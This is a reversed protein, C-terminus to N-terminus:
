RSPAVEIEKSRVFLAAKAIGAAAAEVDEKRTPVGLSVRLSEDAESRSAGMATLVHSPEMAASSCASGSSVEIGRANVIVADALAGEIRVSSTNPLRPAGGGNVSVGGLESILHKEMADRMAAHAGAKDRMAPVVLDCAAAMGLIGPVNPTGSRVGGEQGGGHIHARLIKRAERSAVLAGCGKPGYIKHASFTAIDVGLARADFPVKGVAQTADSHLLAGHKHVIESVQRLPQVVGTESNAAGVSVLDVTDDMRAELEDLLILGDRDVPLPTTDLGFDKMAVCPEVISKHDTSCYLARHSNSPDLGLSAFIINNAETAGSAFVADHPGMGVAAAVKGRAEDVMDMAARGSEHSTSSPNGFNERLTPMMQDVVADAVPTTANYDLYIPM